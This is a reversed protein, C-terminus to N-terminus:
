WKGCVPIVGAWYYPLKTADNALLARQANALATPVSAGLQLDDYFRTMLTATSQDAVPWLTCVVTDAGACLFARSLGLVGEGAVTKGLATQCASLTVLTANLRWGYVEQATLTAYKKTGTGALLLGSHNPEEPDAYGHTAIHLISATKAAQQVQAKTASVGTLLQAGPLRQQLALGEAKAGPLPVSALTTLAADVGDDGRIPIYLGRIPIYMGRIPIYLGRPDDSTMPLAGTEPAAVIVPHLKPATPAARPTVLLSLSPALAVPLKAALYTGKGDRLAAFPLVQLAGDAVIWLATAEALQAEVPKILLTYLAAATADTKADKTWIQARFQGIQTWLADGTVPIFAVLPPKAGHFAVVVVGDDVLTYQLVARDTAARVKNWIAPPDIQTSEEARRFAPVADRVLAQLSAEQQALAALRTQLAAAAATSLTTDQELQPQLAAREKKLADLKVKLAPPVVAGLEVKCWTLEDHLTRGRMYEAIAFAYQANNDKASVSLLRKYVWLNDSFWQQRVTPDYALAARQKERRRAMDLLADYQQASPALTLALLDSQESYSDALMPLQAKEAYAKAQQLLDLTQQSAPFLNALDGYKYAMTALPLPATALVTVLQARITTAKETQQQMRYAKELWFLAMAVNDDVPPLKPQLLAELRTAIEAWHGQRDLAYMAQVERAVQTKPDQAQLAALQDAATQALDKQGAQALLYKAFILFGERPKWFADQVNPTMALMEKGWYAEAAKLEMPPYIAALRDAFSAPAQVFDSFCEGRGTTYATLWVRLWYDRRDPPTQRTILKHVDSPLKEPPLAQAIRLLRQEYAEAEATRGYLRLKHFFLVPMTFGISPIHDLAQYFTERYSDDQGNWMALCSALVANYFDELGSPYSRRDAYNAALDRISVVWVEPMDSHNQWTLAHLAWYKQEDNTALAADLVRAWRLQRETSTLDLVYTECLRAALKPPTIHAQIWPIQTHASDNAINHRREAEKAYNGAEPNGSKNISLASLSYLDASAYGDTVLSTAACIYQAKGLDYWLGCEQLVPMLETLMLYLQPNRTICHEYLYHTPLVAIHYKNSDPGGLVRASWVLAQTIASLKAPDKTKLADDVLTRAEQQAALPTTLFKASLSKNLAEDARAPTLVLALLLVCLLLVAFSLYRM